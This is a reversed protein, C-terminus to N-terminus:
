QGKQKMAEEMAKQLDAQSMKPQSAEISLLEVDFILAEDPGIGGQQNGQIGYALKGPIYFKYKSGVPMLQLAETWGKIVGNLPFTAPEGRKDSSDFVTGDLLTGTYNVKVTSEETPKEGSGEKIVEYQIGSPTSKVGPKKANEAFFEKEKKQNLEMQAFADPNFHKMLVMIVTDGGFLTKKNNLVDYIGRGLMEVNATSDIGGMKLQQAIQLGIAYSVSDMGVKPTKGAFSNGSSFKSCAAFLFIASMLLFSVKKM